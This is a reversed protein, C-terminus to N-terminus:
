KQIAKTFTAKLRQNIIKQPPNSKGYHLEALAVIDNFLVKVSGDEDQYVLLKQCFADLGLRPFQAMAKGGPGPGGGLSGRGLGGPVAPGALGPPLSLPAVFADFVGSARLLGCAFLGPLAVTGLADIMRRAVDLPLM